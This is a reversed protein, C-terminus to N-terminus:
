RGFNVFAAANATAPATSVKKPKMCPSAIPKATVGM